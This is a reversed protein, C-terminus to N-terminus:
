LNNPFNAIKEIRKKQPYYFFVSIGSIHGAMAKKHFVGFCSKGEPNLSNELSPFIGFQNGLFLPIRNGERKRFDRPSVTEIIGGTGESPFYNSHSLKKFSVEKWQSSSLYREFCPLLFDEKLAM